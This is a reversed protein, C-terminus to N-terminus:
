NQSGDTKAAQIRIGPAKERMGEILKKCLADRNAPTDPWGIEALAAPIDVVVEGDGRRTMWKRAM